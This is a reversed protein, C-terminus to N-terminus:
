HLVPRLSFEALEVINELFVTFTDALLVRGVGTWHVNQGDALVLFGEQHHFQFFAAGTIRDDALDQAIHTIHLLFEGFWVLGDPANDDRKFVILSNATRQRDGWDYLKVAVLDAEFQHLRLIFLIPWISRAVWF